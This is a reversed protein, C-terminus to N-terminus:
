HEGRRSPGSWWGFRLLSGLGNVRISASRNGDGSVDRDVFVNVLQDLFGTLKATTLDVDDDVICPICPVVRDLLNLILLPTLSHM